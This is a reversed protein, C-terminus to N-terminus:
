SNSNSDSSSNSISSDVQWSFDFGFSEITSPTNGSEHETILTECSKPAIKTTNLERIIWIGIVKNAAFLTSIEEWIGSVVSSFEAHYPLARDSDIQEFVPNGKSNITPLVVAFKYNCVSLADLAFRIKLNDVSFGLTNKLAIMRVERRPHSRTNMSLDTFLTNELSNQIPTSSLYGGLSRSPDKQILDSGQAGTYYLKM